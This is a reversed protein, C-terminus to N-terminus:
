PAARRGADAIAYLRRLDEYSVETKVAPVITVSSLAAKIREMFQDEEAEEAIRQQIKADHDAKMRDYEPDGSRTVKGTEFDSFTGEEKVHVLGFGVLEDDSM